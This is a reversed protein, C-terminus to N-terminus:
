QIGLHLEFEIEHKIPISDDGFEPIEPKLKRSQKITDKYFGVWEFGRKQYFRIAKTNDNTTKLWVRTCKYDKAKDIAKNILQTGLGKNNIKSDLTVIECDRGSINYTVLGMIKNYEKFIFGPLESTDYMKGRSVSISSGWSESIFNAVLKKDADTIESINFATGNM